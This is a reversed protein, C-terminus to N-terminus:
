RRMMLQFKRAVPRMKALELTKWPMPLVTGGSSLENVRRSSKM